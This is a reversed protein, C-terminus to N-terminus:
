VCRDARSRTFPLITAGPQVDFAVPAGLLSLHRRGHAESGLRTTMARDRDIALKAATSIGLADLRSLLTDLTSTSRETLSEGLTAEPVDVSQQSM